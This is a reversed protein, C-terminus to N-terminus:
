RGRQCHEMGPNKMRLHFRKSGARKQRPAAGIVSGDSRIGEGNSSLLVPPSGVAIRGPYPRVSLRARCPVCCM